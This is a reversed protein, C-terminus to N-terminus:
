RAIEKWLTQEAKNFKTFSEELQKRIKKLQPDDKPIGEPHAKALADLKMLAQDLQEAGGLFARAADSINQSHIEGPEPKHILKWPSRRIEKSTAKLNASVVTMNDILEDIRGRNVVVIGKVESSVVHFDKVIEFVEDGTKRLKTMLETLATLTEPMKTRADATITTIDDMGRHTKALLSKPDAADTERRISKVIAKVDTSAEAMESLIMHIKYLLTTSEHANLELKIKELIDKLNDAAQGISAMAQDLGGSLMIPHEDDALTDATGIETIVIKASGVPPSVVMAKGDSKIQIDKREIRVQYLCRGKGIEERVSVVRGIEADGVTVIAGDIVGISGGSLPVYFSVLQGRTKFLGSAGLWLIVGLMLVLAAVVFLGATLENKKKRPM